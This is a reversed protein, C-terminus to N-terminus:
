KIRTARLPGAGADEIRRRCNVDWTSPPMEACRGALRLADRLTGAGLGELEEQLAVDDLTGATLVVQRPAGVVAVQLTPNGGGRRDGTLAADLRPARGRDSRNTRRDAVARPPNLAKTVADRLEDPNTFGGTSVGVSWERVERVFAEQDADRQVGKQVFVLVDRGTEQAEELEEHTPSKGTQPDKTGYVAGLILIVLDADRV